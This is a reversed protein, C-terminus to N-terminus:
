RRSPSLIPELFSRTLVWVHFALTQTSSLLEFPASVDELLYSLGVNGGGGNNDDDSSEYESGDNDDGHGDGNEADREAQEEEEEQPEADDNKEDDQEQEREEASEHAETSDNQLVKEDKHASPEPQSAKPSTAETMKAREQFYHRTHPDSSSSSSLSHPPTIRADRLTQCAM